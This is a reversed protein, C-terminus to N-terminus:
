ESAYERPLVFKQSYDRTLNKSFNQEIAKGIERRILHDNIELPIFNEASKRIYERSMKVTPNILFADMDSTTPFAAAM